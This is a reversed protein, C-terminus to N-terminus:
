GILIPKILGALITHIIEIPITVCIALLIRLYWFISQVFYSTSHLLRNDLRTTKDENFPENTWYYEKRLPEFIYSPQHTEFFNILLETYKTKIKQESENLSIDSIPPIYYNINKNNSQPELIINNPYLIKNDISKRSRRTNSTSNNLLNSTKPSTDISSHIRPTPITSSEGRGSIRRSSSTTTM